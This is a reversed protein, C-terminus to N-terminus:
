GCLWATRSIPQFENAAANQSVDMKSNSCTVKPFSTNSGCSLKQMAERVSSIDTYFTSTRQTQRRSMCYKMRGMGVGNKIRKMKRLSKCIRTTFIGYIIPNAASNLPALSQVFTAVAVNEELLDYVQLLDYIM